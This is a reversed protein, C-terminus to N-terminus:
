DRVSVEREMRRVAAAVILSELQPLLTFVSNQKSFCYDPSCDPSCDAPADPLKNSGDSEIYASLIVFPIGALEAESRVQRCFAGGDMLPMHLDSLILDPREWRLLDLASRADATQIVEFGYSELALAMVSRFENDDDVLLVRHAM